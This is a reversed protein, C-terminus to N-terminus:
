RPGMFRDGNLHIMHEPMEAIWVETEWALDEAFKKYTKFDLFATVFIKGATVDKTMETIELIRNPDMPGVSTVSEVFYIWDKDKRYLVIDPMKDHLTIEFGLEKLKEVNKVLDKEITDGVYLCESNPAFRPAFEEIIAKQLENHKGTSFKFSEGNINVPMITMKKKSVYLDILKEHYYLFRKVSTKWAPTGMTRLMEVTEETLRYRYNPSNTAKGNDEILAATRFRHLAQKRFTERSNEAYSMDYFTNVFQIIDHIRIWENTTESWSMDPKVGAMALIVYCCIDAQQAKPMGIMQLFERTEEIKKDM